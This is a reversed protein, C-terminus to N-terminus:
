AGIYVRELGELERISSNLQSNESELQRLTQQYRSKQNPDSLKAVIQERIEIAENVKKQKDRVVSLKGQVEKPDCGKRQRLQQIERKLQTNYSATDNNYKRAATLMDEMQNNELQVQNLNNIQQKAVLYGIGGGIATASTVCLTRATGELKNCALLGVGLGLGAGVGVAQFFITMETSNELGGPLYQGLQMNACSSLLFVAILLGIISKKNM